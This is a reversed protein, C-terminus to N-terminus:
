FVSVETTSTDKTGCTQCEYTAVDLGSDGNEAMETDSELLEWDEEDGDCPCDAFKAMSPDPPQTM